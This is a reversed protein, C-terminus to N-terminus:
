DGDNKEANCCVVPEEQGKKNAFSDCMKGKNLSNRSQTGKYRFIHSECTLRPTAAAKLWIYVFHIQHMPKTTKKLKVHIMSDLVCVYM